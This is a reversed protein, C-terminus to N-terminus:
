FAFFSEGDLELPLKCENVLHPSPLQLFLVTQLLRASM